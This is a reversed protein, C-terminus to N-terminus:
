RTTAQSSRGLLRRVEALMTVDERAAIVLVRASSSDRAVDADPRCVANRAVDLEIGLFQLGDCVDARTQVDNQGVGGTFVLADLGNMAAALAGIALRIRRGYVRLALQAAPNGAEAAARVQRMDGSIGSLGLLGSQDNLAVNIEEATLGHQRQLYLLIGPDVSGSRTAMVLGEMPTFGMTTEVCKSGIIAAASCGQGLHCVILRRDDNAGLVEHARRAAYAYSVGHFGYRRIGFEERWRAPIAYTRAEESLTAHFATDFVVLHPITPLAAAVADLAELSPPHHLPALDRLEELRRRVEPTLIVSERFPGGHVWRHATAGLNEVNWGAGRWDDLARQIIGAPSRDSLIEFHGEDARYRAPQASWDASAGHRREGTESLVNLKLSSSGANVLLVDM